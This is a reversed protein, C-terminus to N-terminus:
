KRHEKPKYVRKSRANAQVKTCIKCQKSGGSQYINDPSLVHGAPCHTKSANIVGVGRGRLINIRLTVPELHSPNVCNRVRCLHDLTLGKPIPGNVAAYAVIHAKFAFPKGNKKGAINGYGGNNLSATWLWCHTGLSECLPGDKNVKPWFREMIPAVRRNM